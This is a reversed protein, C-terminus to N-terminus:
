NAHSKMLFTLMSYVLNILMLSTERNLQFMGGAKAKLGGHVQRQVLLVNKWISKRHRRQAASTTKGAVHLWDLGYVHRAIKDNQQELKEFMTCCVVVELMFQVAVIFLPIRDLSPQILNLYVNAAIMVTPNPLIYIKNTIQYYDFDEEVEDMRDHANPDDSMYQQDGADRMRNHQSHGIKENFSKLIDEPVKPYNTQNPPYEFGLKLLVHAKISKLSAKAFVSRFQCAPCHFQHQEFRSHGSYTAKLDDESDYHRRHVGLQKENLSKFHQSVNLNNDYKLVTEEVSASSDSSDYGDSGPLLGITCKFLLLSYVTWLGYRSVRGGTKAMKEHAWIERRGDFQQVIVTLETCLSNLLTGFQTLSIFLVISWSIGVVSNLTEICYSLRAPFVEPPLPIRYVSAKRFETFYYYTANLTTYCTFMATLKINRVFTAKRLAFTSPDDRLCNKSNIYGKLSLITSRHYALCAARGLATTLVICMNFITIFEEATATSDFATRFLQVMHHTYGLNRPWNNGDLAKDRLKPDLGIRYSVFRYRSCDTDKPVLLKPDLDLSTGLCREVILKVDNTNIKPNLGTLYLWFRQPRPEVTISTVSLDQLNVEGTGSITPRKVRPKQVVVSDKERESVECQGSAVAAYSTSKCCESPSTCKEIKEM